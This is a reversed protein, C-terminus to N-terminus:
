HHRTTKKFDINKGLEIFKKYSIPTYDWGNCGIDWIRKNQCFPHDKIGMHCHGHIQYAGHHAKNWQYIPYHFLVFHLNPEETGKIYLDVYDYVTEFKNYKVIEDYDDHNGMIYHIKGKLAFIVEKAWEPRGFVLDGLYFVIDNDGVVDNWNDIITRHMKNVDPDGNKDLFPRNDFGIVNKHFLHFDSTFFIDKWDSM